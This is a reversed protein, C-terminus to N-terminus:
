SLHELPSGSCSAREETVVLAGSTLGLLECTADDGWALVQDRREIRLDYRPEELDWVELIKAKLKALKARVPVQFSRRSVEATGRRRLEVQLVCRKPGGAGRGGQGRDETEKRARRALEAPSPPPCEESTGGSEERRGAAAEVREGPAPLPGRTSAAFEAEVEEEDPTLGGARRDEEGPPRVAARPPM